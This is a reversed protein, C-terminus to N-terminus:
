KIMPDRYLFLAWLSLLLMEFQVLIQIVIHRKVIITLPGYCTTMIKKMIFNLLIPFIKCFFLVLQFAFYKQVLKLDPYYPSLTRVALNYGWIGGLVTVAIFPIFYLILRDFAGIDEIYIINLIVFILIHSIPMQIILLKMFNFNSKTMPGRKLPLCCCLPPSKLTFADSKSVAIFNTEGNVYIM